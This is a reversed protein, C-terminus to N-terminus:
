CFDLVPVGEPKHVWYRDELDSSNSMELFHLLKQGKRDLATKAAPIAAGRSDPGFDRSRARPNAETSSFHVYAFRGGM